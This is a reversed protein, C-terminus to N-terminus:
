RRSRAWRADHRPAHRLGRALRRLHDARRPRALQHIVVGRSTRRARAPRGGRAPHGARDRRGAADLGARRSDRRPRLRRAGPLHPREVEAAPEPLLRLDALPRRRCSRTAGACRSRADRADARLRGQPVHRHRGAQAASRLILYLRYRDAVEGPVDGPTLATSQAAYNPLGDVLRAFRVVDGTGIARRRRRHPTSSTSPRPAPISTSGTEASIWRPAATGTSSSSARRSPRSRRALWREGSAPLPRGDGLCRREESFPRRTRTRSSSVQRALSSSPRKARRERRGRVFPADPHTEVPTAM